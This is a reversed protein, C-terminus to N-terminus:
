SIIEPDVPPIDQQWDPKRAEAGPAVLAPALEEPPPPAAQALLLAPLPLASM